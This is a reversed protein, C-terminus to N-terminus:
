FTLSLTCLLFTMTNNIIPELGEISRSEFASPFTFPSHKKKLVERMRSWEFGNVASDKEHMQACM